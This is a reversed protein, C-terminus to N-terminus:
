IWKSLLRIINLLSGIIAVICIFWYGIINTQEKEKTYHMWSLSTLWQKWQNFVHKRFVVMGIGIFLPISYYLLETM